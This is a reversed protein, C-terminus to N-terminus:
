SNKGYRKSIRNDAVTYQTLDFLSLQINLSEYAHNRSEGGMPLSIKVPMVKRSDGPLTKKINKPFVLGVRKAITRSAKTDAHQTYGCNTCLFKEGSRNSKETHRCQPCEQSSHKPNVLIVPKGSKAALWAIKAFLDGWACDLIAKNLGTKRSAGNRKYGGKGDRKPKARKVMNKINLDERGVADATKVIKSAAQWNYGDRHQALKHQTRAIRAYAKNKNQSGQCKRSIARQRMTLRRSTKINTTVRINEVFSGDSLAVLKNVGVDIGVVSKIQSIPKKKPLEQPIQVLMSLFWYGGARKVTCTRVSQISTLDRSNHMKVNGIGPLYVTAYNNKITKIKVHGPSYNFSNLTRFYRPFGKGHRWFNTFATDLKLINGQLVVTSIESFHKLKHRLRTTVKIQINSASDWKIVSSSTKLAINLDTPIVGHKLVPCTLPCYGGYEVRTKLDCYSGLAYNVPQDANQNNTNYGIERERLAYNRHKRLTILWQSMKAQQLQCPKLKFNWRVLM